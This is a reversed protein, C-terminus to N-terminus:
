ANYLDFTRQLHESLLNRSDFQSLKEKQWGRKVYDRQQLSMELKDIEWTLRSEATKGMMLERVDANLKKRSREPLSSLILSLVRLEEIRHDKESKKEEPMKDGIVSEALDHLLCMRVIKAGDLRMEEGLFMGLIGMRYSHDAVSEANDIGGKKVWGSRKIQKLKGAARILENANTESSFLEKARGSRVQKMAKM